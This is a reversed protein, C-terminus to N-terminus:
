YYFILETRLLLDAYEQLNKESSLRIKTKEIHKTFSINNRTLLHKWILKLVYNMLLSIATM